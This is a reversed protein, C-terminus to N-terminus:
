AAGVHLRYFEMLDTCPPQNGLQRLMGAVQGRHMTAHNVVHQILKRRAIRMGLATFEEEFSSEPMNEVFAHWDPWVRSWQDRLEPFGPVPNPYLLGPDVEAGPSTMGLRLRIIWDYEALFMHRLTGLISAHSSHLDRALDENRLASCAHLTENDAWAMYDVLSLLLARVTPM